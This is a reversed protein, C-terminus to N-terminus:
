NRIKFNKYKSIYEIKKEFKFYGIDLLYEVM